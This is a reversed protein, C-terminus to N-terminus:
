CAAEAEFLSPQRKDRKREAKKLEWQRASERMEARWREQHARDRADLMAALKPMLVRRGWLQVVFPRWWCGTHPLYGRNTVSWAKWNAIMKARKALPDDHQAAQMQCRSRRIAKAEDGAAYDRPMM